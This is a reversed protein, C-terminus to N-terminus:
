IIIYSSFNSPATIDYVARYRINLGVLISDIAQYYVNIRYTAPTIKDLHKRIGRIGHHSEIDIGMNQAVLVAERYIDDWKERFSKLTCILGDINTVEVDITSDRAEIQQYQRHGCPDQVMDWGYSRM